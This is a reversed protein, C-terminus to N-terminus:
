RGVGDHYVAPRKMKAECGISGRNSVTTNGNGSMVFFSAALPPATLLLRDAPTKRLTFASQSSRSHENASRRAPQAANEIADTNSMRSSWLPVAIESDTTRPARIAL